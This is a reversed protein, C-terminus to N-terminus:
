SARAAVAEDPRALLPPSKVGEFRERAEEAWSIAPEGPLLTLADLLALAV